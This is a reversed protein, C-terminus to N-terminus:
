AAKRRILRRFEAYLIIAAEADELVANEWFLIDGVRVHALNRIWNELAMELDRRVACYGAWMADSKNM